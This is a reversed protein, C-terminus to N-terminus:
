MKEPIQIGLLSLGNTIVTLVGQTLLLRYAKAEETEANTVSHNEYFSSFKQCLAYLYTCLTSPMYSYATATVVDPFQSLLRAVLREDTEPTYFLSKKEEIDGGKELIGKCRVATYQLYPGSNGDLQLAEDWDFTYGQSPTRKLDNYKLAGVGIIDAIEDDANLTKAKEVIKTLVEELKISTGKRTSMRGEKLRVFGHAVHVFMDRNGFGLLESAWFVQRLHLTQEAGVEYIIKTPHWTKQRFFITALDRTFYTTAGDKKLLIGPPMDPDPFPIILAGESEKAIGKKKALAIVEPMLGTYASEGYAEDIHVGLFDYLTDFEKISNDVLTQWMAREEKNGDELAKFAARAEDDLEPNKEAESHFRVYLNELEPITLQEVPKEAWKQIAVIMKGFQTGWDGLHNDGIMTWGQFRFLKIIADGIITSRLHGISFRKAINPASLDVVGINGKGKLSSGFTKKESAIDVLVKQYWADSLTANIFGPAAATFDSFYKKLDKQERLQEVFTQAMEMPNNYSEGKTFLSLPLSTAYDGFTENKPPEVVISSLKEKPFGLAVGIHSLSISFLEKPSQEM